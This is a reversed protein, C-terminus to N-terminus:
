SNGAHLVHKGVITFEAGIDRIPVNALYCVHTAYKAIGRFEILDKTPIYRSCVCDAHEITGFSFNM